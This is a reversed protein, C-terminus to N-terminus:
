SPIGLLSDYFNSQDDAGAPAISNATAPTWQGGPGWNGDRGASIIQCSNPNLYITPNTSQYYPTITTLTSNANQLTLADRSDYGNRRGYSSFFVYPQLGWADKYSFFPASVTTGAPTLCGRQYMQGGSFEFFPNIRDGTTQTPNLPNTSFGNVGGAATPIGGLFFV